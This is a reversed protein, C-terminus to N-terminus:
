MVAKKAEEAASTKEGQEVRAVFASLLYTDNEFRQLGELKPPMEKWISFDDADMQAIWGAFKKADFDPRRAIAVLVVALRDQEGYSFITGATKLREGVANGVRAQDEVHFYPSQALAALLDATHATAHIWGHKADFGRVDKEANLYELAAD